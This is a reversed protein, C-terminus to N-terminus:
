QACPPPREQIVQVSDVQLPSHEQNSKPAPPVSCVHHPHEQLYQETEVHTPLGKEDVQRPHHEKADVPPPPHEEAEERIEGYPKTKPSLMSQRIKPIISQRYEKEKNNERIEKIKEFRTKRAWDDQWKQHSKERETKEKEWKKENETIYSTIWKAMEWRSELMKKTNIRERKEQEMRLMKEQKIKNEKLLKERRAKEIEKYEERKKNEVKIREVIEELKELKMSTETQTKKPSKDQSKKNRWKKWINSKMEKLELRRTREEGETFKKKEKPSLFKWNERIKQEQIKRLTETKQIRSLELRRNKEEQKKKMKPKENELLQWTKENDRLFEKCERLLLWSQEKKQAMEIKEARCREMERTDELHKKFASEWDIMECNTVQEGQQAHREPAPAPVEPPTTDVSSGVELPKGGEQEKEFADRRRELMEKINQNPRMKKKANQAPEDDDDKRKTPNTKEMKEDQTKDKETEYEDEELKRRKAGPAAGHIRHIDAREKNREKRLGRIKRVQEEEKALDNEIEEENKKFTKDGLKCMMRPLACRNYKSRSNM